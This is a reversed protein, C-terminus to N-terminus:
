GISLYKIITPKRIKFKGLGRSMILVYTSYNVLDRILNKQTRQTERNKHGRVFHTPNHSISKEFDLFAGMDLWGALGSGLEGKM